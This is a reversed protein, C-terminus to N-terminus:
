LGFNTTPSFGLTRLQALAWPEYNPKLGSAVKYARVKEMSGVIVCISGIALPKSM